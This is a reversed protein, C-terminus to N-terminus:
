FLAHTIGNLICQGRLTGGADRVDMEGDREEVPTRSEDDISEEDYEPVFEVRESTAMTIDPLKEREGETRRLHQDLDAERKARLEREHNHQTMTIEQVERLLDGLLQETANRVDDTPDALYRRFSSAIFVM